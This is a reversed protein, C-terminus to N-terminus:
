SLCLIYTLWRPDINGVTKKSLHILYAKPSKKNLYTHVTNKNEMQETSMIWKYLHLAFKITLRLFYSEVFILVDLFLHICM